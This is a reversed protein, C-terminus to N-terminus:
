KGNFVDKFNLKNWEEESMIAKDSEQVGFDLQATLGIHDPDNLFWHPPQRVLDPEDEWKKTEGKHRYEMEQSTEEVYKRPNKCHVHKTLISYKSHWQPFQDLGEYAFRQWHDEHCATIYGADRIASWYFEQTRSFSNFIFYGPHIYEHGQYIKRVNKIKEIVNSRMLWYGDSFNFHTGAYYNVGSKSFWQNNGWDRDVPGIIGIQPIKNLANEFDTLWDQDVLVDNACFGLYDYAQYHHLFFSRPRHAGTNARMYYFDIDQDKLNQEQQQLYERTGDISGNDIVVIKGPTKAILNEFAKKTYSLRNSALFLIASKM